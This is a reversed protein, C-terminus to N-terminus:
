SRSERQVLVFGSKAAERGAVTPQNFVVFFFVSHKSQGFFFDRLEILFFLKVASSFFSISSSCSFVSPSSIHSVRPLSLAGWFFRLLFTEGKSLPLSLSSSTITSKKLVIKHNKGKVKSDASSRWTAIEM